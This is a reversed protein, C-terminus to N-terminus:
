GGIMIGPSRLAFHRQNQNVRATDRIIDGIVTAARRAGDTHV